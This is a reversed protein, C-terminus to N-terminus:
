PSVTPSKLLRWATLITPGASNGSTKRSSIALGESRLARPSRAASVSCEWRPAVCLVRCAKCGNSGGATAARAECLAPSATGEHDIWEPRNVSHSDFSAVPKVMASGKSGAAQWTGDDAYAVK